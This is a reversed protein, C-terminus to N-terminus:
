HPAWDLGGHDGLPDILRPHQGDADILYIGGAGIMVIQRGDPAFVAMPTDERMHPLRRLGTGDVNVLWLDWPAGHAEAV